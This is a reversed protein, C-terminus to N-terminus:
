VLDSKDPYKRVSVSFLCVLWFALVTPKCQIFIDSDLHRSLPQIQTWLSHWAQPADSLHSSSAVRAANSIRLCAVERELLACSSVKRNLNSKKNCCFVCLMFNVMKIM